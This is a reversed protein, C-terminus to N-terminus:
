SVCAGADDLYQPEELGPDGPDATARTPRTFAGPWTNAYQAAFHSRQPDYGRPADPDVPRLPLEPPSSSM